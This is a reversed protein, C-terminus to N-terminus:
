KKDAMELHEQLTAKPDEADALIEGHKGHRHPLSYSVKVVDLVGKSMAFIEDIEELSRYATEPFFFYVCVMIFVNMVLFIIYTRYGITALAVPTIEVVLFNFAWTTAVMIGSARARIRLPVIEAPYLWVMALWGVAFSLQTFFMFIARAITPGKQGPFPTTGAMVAMGIIQGLTGWLMLKRRGVREILKVSILSSLFYGIGNVSATIVRSQIENLGLYQQYISAAFYIIINIGCMQHFISHALGICLRHLNKTATNNSFMGAWSTEESIELVLQIESLDAEILHSDEDGYLAELTKRAEEPRNQRLLWRPSEPLDLIILCVFIAFVMQFAIPFRWSASSGVFKFGFDLWYALAVGGTIMAGEIM